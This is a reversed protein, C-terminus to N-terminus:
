SSFNSCNEELTWSFPFILCKGVGWLFLFIGDSNRPKKASFDKIEKLNSRPRNERLNRFFNSFRGLPALYYLLTGSVQVKKKTLRESVKKNKTQKKKEIRYLIYAFQKSNRVKEIHYLNKPSEKSLFEL